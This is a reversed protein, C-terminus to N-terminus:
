DGSKSPGKKSKGAKWKLKGLDETKVFMVHTDAFAVSCGEGRHNETTLLQPGGAVNWGPKCEFLLVVDGPIESLKRGALNRNFAYSSEGLVADSAKCIFQKPTTYDHGVLLDCWKDAPPLTDNADKSYVWIRKALGSISTGCIIRYAPRFPETSWLYSWSVVLALSVCMIVTSLVKLARGANHLIIKRMALVALLLTLLLWPLGLLFMLRNLPRNPRFGDIAPFALAGVIFIILCVIAVLLERPQERRSNNDTESM